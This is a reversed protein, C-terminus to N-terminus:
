FSIDLIISHLTQFIVVMFAKKTTENGGLNSQYSLREKLLYCLFFYTTAFFLGSTYHGQINKPQKLTHKDLLYCKLTLCYLQTQMGPGFPQVEKLDQWARVASFFDQKLSFLYQTGPALVLLPQKINEHKQTTNFDESLIVFEHTHTHM